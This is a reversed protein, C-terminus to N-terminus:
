ESNSGGEAQRDLSEENQITKPSKEEPKKEPAGPRDQTDAKSHTYASSLPIMKKDLKLVDIELEKLNNLDGQSFGLALMPVLFSYGSAALKFSRDIYDSENYYSIPLIEYRFSINVNSYLSNIVRTVFASFQNGLVMMLALDNQLSTGLTTSGVSAFVQSSTGSTSYINQVMKELTNRQAEGSTNSGEVKVDAYTTLVSINPNKGMMGVTGKHIQEAEEPEFLLTGDNLHPIEQVIIKRIEEKDRKMEVEVSEDYRLIAEIISVFFPYETWFSFYIGEEPIIQIWKEGSKGELRDRQNYASSIYTPYAALAARRKARDSISTFYEINFEIIDIGEETKFYSRCYSYPLDLVAFNNDKKTLILGYYAGRRLVKQACNALFVSLNMKTLFNVANMYRKQIHSTSLSEGYKPNPILIGTYKLLSAYYVILRKYFNDKAFFDESLQQIQKLNGSELINQVDELTKAKGRTFRNGFLQYALNSTAIMNKTSKSFSDLNFNRRFKPISTEEQGLLFGEDEKKNEAM